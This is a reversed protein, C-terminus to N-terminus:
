EELVGKEAYEKGRKIINEYTPQQIVDTLIKKDLQGHYCSAAFVDKFNASTILYSETFRPLDTFRREESLNRFRSFGEITSVICTGMLINILNAEKMQYFTSIENELAHKYCEARLAYAPYNGGWEFTSYDDPALTDLISYNISLEKYLAVRLNHLKAKNAFYNKVPEAFFAIIFGSLTAIIVKTTEDM